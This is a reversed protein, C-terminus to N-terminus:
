QKSVLTGTKLQKKESTSFIKKYLRIDEVYIIAKALQHVDLNTIPETIEAALMAAVKAVYVKSNNESPPAYICILEELTEDGNTFKSRGSLKLELDRILANYGSEMDSFQRFGSQSNIPRLNGPNNHRAALSVKKLASFDHEFCPNSEVSIPGSYYHDSASAWDYLELLVLLILFFGFSWMGITLMAKFVWYFCSKWNRIIVYTLILLVGVLVVLIVDEKNM